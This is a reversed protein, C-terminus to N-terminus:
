MYFEVISDHIQIHLSPDQELYQDVVDWDEPHVFRRLTPMRSALCPRSSQRQFKLHAELIDESSMSVM